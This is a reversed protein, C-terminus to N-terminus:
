PQSRCDAWDALMFGVPRCAGEGNVLDATCGHMPLIAGTFTLCLGHCHSRTGQWPKLALDSQHLRSEPRLCPEPSSCPRLCLPPRLRM